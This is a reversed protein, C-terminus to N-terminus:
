AGLETKAAAWAEAATDFGEAQVAYATVKVTATSYASVDTVTEAIKFTEFVVESDGAKNTATRAYVDSEGAVLTWGNADLQAAITNGEKTKDEIAEIGNEVKVFLWCDESNSAVTVTPDKDYEKGPYLKYENAQVRNGAIAQGDAGVPAEDLTIDVKGVTFTNTVAESDTLYALTGLVSAAVLLVCCLAILLAKRATKM